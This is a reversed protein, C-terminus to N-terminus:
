LNSMVKFNHFRAKDIHGFLLYQARTPALARTRLGTVINENTSKGCFKEVSTTLKPNTFFINKDAPKAEISALLETCEDPTIVDRQRLTIVVATPTLNYRTSLSDRIKETIVTYKYPDTADFPLLLEAVAGHIKRTIRDGNVRAEFDSTVLINYEELGVLMLLSALTYIQRGATEERNVENPLFIYPLKPDQVVFGSSQKYTARLDNSAPLIKNALVGRSVCVGKRELCGILYELAKEKGVGHFKSADIEFYKIIYPIWNDRDVAKLAGCFPNDTPRGIEISFQQLAIIRDLLRMSIKQRSGARSAVKGFDFKSKRQTDIKKIEDDIRSEELLFLQWPLHLKNCEGVLDSYSLLGTETASKFVKREQLNEDPYIDLIKQVVSEPIEVISTGNSRLTIM